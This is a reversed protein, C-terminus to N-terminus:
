FKPGQIRTRMDLGARRCLYYATRMDSCLKVGEPDDKGGQKFCKNVSEKSSLGSKEKEQVCSTNKMCELLSKAEERCGKGM